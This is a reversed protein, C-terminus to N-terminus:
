SLDRLTVRNRAEWEGAARDLSTTLASIDKARYRRDSGDDAAGDMYELQGEDDVVLGLTKREPLHIEERHRQFDADACALCCWITPQALTTLCETCFCLDGPAPPPEQM